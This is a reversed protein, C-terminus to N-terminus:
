HFRSEFHFNGSGVDKSEVDRRAKTILVPYMVFFHENRHSYEMFRADSFLCFELVKENMEICMDRPQTHHQGMIFKKIISQLATGLEQLWNTQTKTDECALEVRNAINWTIADRTFESELSFKSAFDDPIKLQHYQGDFSGGCLRERTSGITWGLTETVSSLLLQAIHEGTHSTIDPTLYISNRSCYKKNLSVVRILTPQTVDRKITGKDGLIAFPSPKGTCPLPKELLTKLRSLLVQYVSTVFDQIFRRSHNVKM